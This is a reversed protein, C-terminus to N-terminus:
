QNKKGLSASVSMKTVPKNDSAFAKGARLLEGNAKAFGMDLLVGSMLYQSIKTWQANETLLQDTSSSHASSDSSSDAAGLKFFSIAGVAFQNGSFGYTKSILSLKGPKIIQMM